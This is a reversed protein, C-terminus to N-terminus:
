AEAKLIRINEELTVNKSLGDDDYLRYLYDQELWGHMRITAPDIDRIREAMVEVKPRGVTSRLAVIQRNLNSESVTDDDVLLLRGVGRRLLRM